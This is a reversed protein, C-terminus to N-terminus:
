LYYGSDTYSAVRVTYCIGDKQAQKDHWSFVFLFRVNYSCIEMKFSYLTYAPM